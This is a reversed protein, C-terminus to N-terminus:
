SGCGGCGGGGGGCSSGGSSGCSSSSSSGCSSSSSSGCSSSSTSDSTWFSGQTRKVQRPFLSAYNERAPGSLAAFGYIGLLLSLENTTGGLPIGAAQDRLRAFLTQFDKVVRQGLSTMRSKLVFVLLFPLPMCAALLFGINHRGRSLAIDIKLYAILWLFATAAIGLLVRVFWQGPAPLLRQARLEEELVQCAHRCTESAFVSSAPRAYEFHELISQELRRRAYQAAHPIAQLDNGQEFLLRRDLLSVIATSLCEDTGSRLLALLHPDPELMPVDDSELAHRFLAVAGIVAASLAAFFALFEPGPLQFPNM